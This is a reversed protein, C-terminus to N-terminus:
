IASARPRQCRRRAQLRLDGRLIFGVPQSERVDRRRRHPRQSQGGPAVPEARDGEIAEEVESWRARLLPLARRWDREAARGLADFTWWASEELREPPHEGGRALATPLVGDLYVPLFVGACPSGFGLWVPWPATRDRPLRAVLSATTTGVPEAHMCLTYRAPDDPLGVTERYARCAEALGPTGHADAVAKALEAGEAGGRTGGGFLKDAEKLYAGTAQKARAEAGAGRPRGEGGGRDKERRLRDLESFTLKERDDPCV